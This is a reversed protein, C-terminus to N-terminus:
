ASEDNCIVKRIQERWYSGRQFVVDAFFNDEMTENKRNLEGITQNMKLQRKEDFNLDDTAFFDIDFSDSMFKQLWNFRPVRRPEAYVNIPLTLTYFDENLNHPSLYSAEETDNLRYINRDLAFSAFCFEYKGM